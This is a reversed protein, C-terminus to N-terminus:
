FKCFFFPAIFTKCDLKMIHVLHFFNLLNESVLIVFQLDSVFVVLDSDWLVVNKWNYIYDLLVRICKHITVMRKHERFPTKPTTYHKASLPKQRDIPVQKFHFIQYLDFVVEQTLVGRKRERLDCLCFM